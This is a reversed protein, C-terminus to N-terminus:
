APERTETPMGTNFDESARYHQLTNNLTTFHNYTHHRVHRCVVGFVVGCEPLIDHRSASEATDDGDVCGVSACPEFGAVGWRDCQAVLPM